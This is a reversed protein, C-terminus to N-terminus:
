KWINEPYENDVNTINQISEQTTLTILLFNNKHFKPYIARTMKWFVSSYGESQQPLKM